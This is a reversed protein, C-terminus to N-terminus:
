KLGGFERALIESIRGALGRDGLAKLIRSRVFQWNSNSSLEQEVTDLIIGRYFDVVDLLKREVAEKSVQTSM